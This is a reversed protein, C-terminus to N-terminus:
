YVMRRRRWMLAVMIGAVAVAGAGAVAVYFLAGHTRELKGNQWADYTAHLDDALGPITIANFDTTPLSGFVREAEPKAGVRDKPIAAILANVETDRPDDFLGVDATNPFLTVRGTMKKEIASVSDQCVGLAYYGGFPLDPRRAHQHMYAVAFLSALRTVEVAEHGTYTHADRKLVWAQDLTDMVRWEAKGDIGFYWSVDANLLPGRIHWEYEAHSVPVLLPRSRRLLGGTDPVAIQTNIWFPMMVDQGKYHLHGFNAFYRSDTVTVTNGTEILDSVFEEPSQPLREANWHLTAFGSDELGNAALRNLSNALWQSESHEPALAPNAGDGRVVGEGLNSIIGDITFGPTKAPDASDIQVRSLIPYPGVDLFQRAQDERLPPPPSGPHVSAMGEVESNKGVIKGAVRVTPNIERMTWGPFRDLGRWDKGLIRKRLEEILDPTLLAPGKKGGGDLQHILADTFGPQESLERMMQSLLVTNPPMPGEPVPNGRRCGTITLMAWLLALKQTLRM